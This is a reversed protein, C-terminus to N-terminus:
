ALAQDLDSIIDTVDEIGVSLRLLNNTIGLRERVDEPIDAHTQVAPLTILSEVGGLSEAFRILRVKRLIERALEPKDVAFSLMGGYGSAQGEHIHRGPHNPLGPYYVQEVRPHKLLWNAVALANANHKEMRLPLTKLSRILLWSDNPSLVGGTSNQIFKVKEGLTKERTVVIGCILDNHGALYKTGSHIVIDAGLALPRQFYPTLFTNDVIIQIIKEQGIKVIAQIDVVKLLPNTPTEVIIAKTDPTVAQQVEEIKSGDLFTVKLGFRSFIKDLIRYTGGYCDEVVILHDGAQYLMLVATVAAMGSAFAFGMQGGELDAIAEELIKRTPNQSRTYDFGTSKGLAPHRFTATQYIPTSIAGTGSDTCVGVHVFKTNFNM